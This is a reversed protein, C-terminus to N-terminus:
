KVSPDAVRGIFLVAGTPVDTLVFLFPRDARIVVPKSIDGPGGTAGLVATAAAAETGKEDVDINAQHIVKALYLGEPLTAIGTFDARQLDFALPMGLAKLAEKLDVRSEISFRPLTLDVKRYDLLGGDEKTNTMDVLRAPTLSREFAALDAPVIITMALEDSGNRESGSGLYPMRVARWGAGIAVPFNPGLGSSELHMMPVRVRTGDTRTFVGPATSEPDFPDLWPAKLYIANALAIRTATSVDAPKLLEPIRGATRKKVWANIIGRAAEPDSVFDVLRVGSGFRAALADLFPKEIPMGQQAFTANAIRLTVELAEGDPGNFTGSRSALAADLANMAGALRDSGASRMVTDMQAATEGRAGARAMALALAISTPSLVVNTSPTGARKLLDLGFANIAAVAKKAAAPSAAARPVDSIALDVAAPRATPKPFSAVNAPMYRVAAAIPEPCWPTSAEGVYGRDGGVLLVSRDALTVAIARERPEPLPTTATWTGPAPDYLEADAIARSGPQFDPGGMGGAVLVRGDGLLVASRNAAASQMSGASSWTRSRPDLREASATVAPTEGGSIGGVVLAGGDPLAVLSFGHRTTALSGASEWTGAAPDFIEASGLPAGDADGSGGVVLVRGDALTVAAAGGRAVLMSGARSWSGSDPDFLEASALWRTTSSDLYTGGAILVRGDALLAGAPAFRAVDLLGTASWTGTRPDYLKTSSFAGFAGEAPDGSTMGGTVLVRGDDLTIAVFDDRPANLSGTASWTGAAPDFTEAAVSEDWAGGPTCVNDSGVVLVRGDDLRAAHTSARALQLAGAAVWTSGDAAPTSSATQAPSPAPTLATMPAPPTTGCGAIAVTVVLVSLTRWTALREM